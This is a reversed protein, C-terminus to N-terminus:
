VKLYVEDHLLCVFHCIKSFYGLLSENFYISFHKM